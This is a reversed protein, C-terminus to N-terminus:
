APEALCPLPAPFASILMCGAPFQLSIMLDFQSSACSPFFQFMMYSMGIRYERAAVTSVGGANTANAQALAAAFAQSAAGGQAIANGAATGAAQGSGQAEAHPWGHHHSM